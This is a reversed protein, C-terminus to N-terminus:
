APRGDGPSHEVHGRVRGQDDIYGNERAYAVMGDGRVEVM